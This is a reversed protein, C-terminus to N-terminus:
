SREELFRRVMDFDEVTREIRLNAVVYAELRGALRERPLPSLSLKEAILAAMAEETAPRVRWGTVDDVVYAIEPHHRPGDRLRDFAVVPLGYALAHNVALGVAGAYVFLDAAKFYGALREEDYVAGVLFISSGLASGAEREAEARAPGDGIVTLTLGSLKERLRRVIRVLRDFQKDPTLRGTSLLHPGRGPLTAPAVSATRERIGKVDITNRAVFVRGRPLFRELYRAGEESYCVHGDALLFPVLRAAQAALDKPSAFGREMNWGHSWFM